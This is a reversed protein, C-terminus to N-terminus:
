DRMEVCKLLDPPVDQAFEFRQNQVNQAPMGTLLRVQIQLKHFKLRNHASEHSGLLRAFIM